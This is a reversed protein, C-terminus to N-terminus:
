GPVSVGFATARIDPFNRRRYIKSAVGGVIVIKMQVEM